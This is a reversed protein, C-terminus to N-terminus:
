MGTHIELSLTGPYCLCGAEPVVDMGDPAAPSGLRPSLALSYVSQVCPLNSVAQFVDNFQIAEGFGAEASVQDLARCLAQRISEEANGFHSKVVIKARVDVPAYVPQMLRFQTTLMRRETLRKQIWEIYERSLAPREIGSHPKVTIFVTGKGATARVKHICLGPTSLVIREYDSLLVASEPGKMMAAFRTQLEYLGIADAGGTGPAPNRLSHGKHSVFTNEEKVNGAAGETVACAAVYLSGGWGPKKVVVKNGKLQYSFDDAEEEPRVFTYAMDGDAGETELLACFGTINELAGIDLEQDIYGFVTGLSRDRAMEETCCVAVVNGKGGAPAYGFRERDFRVTMCGPEKEFICFRGKEEGRASTYERYPKGNKERAYIWIYPYLETDYSLSVVQRGWKTIMVARTNRQRLRLLNATISHLRPPMDYQQSQLLCRIAYGTVPTGTFVSPKSDSKGIVVEGSALLSHTDDRVPLDIWGTQTYIQWRLHAFVPGEGAHFPNRQANEIVRVYITVKKTFDPEGDFVCIFSSGERAPAGFVAAGAPLNRDLLTTIDTYAGDHDSFVASIGWPQHREPQTTEYVLNESTFKTYPPVSFAEKSDFLCQAELPASPHLGLLKFLKIKIADTVTNIASRQLYQFSTFNQLMTIGPDSVNYNTWESGYLPIQSLAEELLEIYTQDNLNISEPM